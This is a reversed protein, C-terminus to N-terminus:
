GAAGWFAYASCFQSGHDVSAQDHFLVADIEGGFGYAWASSATASIRFDWGSPKVTASILSRRDVVRLYM